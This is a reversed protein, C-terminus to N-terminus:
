SNDDPAIAIIRTGEVIEVSDTVLHTKRDEREIRVIFDAEVVVGQATAAALISEANHQGKALTIPNENIFVQVMEAEPPTDSINAVPGVAM